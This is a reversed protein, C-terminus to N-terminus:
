NFDPEYVSMRNKLNYQLISWFLIYFLNFLKKSLNQLKEKEAMKKWKIKRMLYVIPLDFLWPIYHLVTNNITCSCQRLEFHNPCLNGITCYMFKKRGNFFVLGFGQGQSVQNQFRLELFATPKKIEWSVGL